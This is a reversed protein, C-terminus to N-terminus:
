PLEITGQPVIRDAHSKTRKNEPHISFCSNQLPDLMFFAGEGGKIRVKEM